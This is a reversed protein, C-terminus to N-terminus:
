QGQYHYTYSKIINGDKDKINLLRQFTDYEYYTTEGKADAKSTMGILPDYTYTTMQAKTPYFRVDDIQGSLSITYTSGTVQVNTNVVYSWSGGSKLWYSLTYTGGSLGSLPKSYTTSSNYSYHGTKSDGNISTGDGEEFSDYFIDNSTANTAQAVPYLNSYGWQYAAPPALTKEQQLINGYNDYNDFNILTEATNSLVQKSVTQPLLLKGNNYWDKYNITTLTLQNSNKTQQYSIPPAIMNRNLMTQYVNGTAVFDHPYKIVDILDDGKSNFTENRTAFLHTADDYYYNHLTGTKNGANDYVTDTESQLLIAGTPLNYSDLVIDQGVFSANFQECSTVDFSYTYTPKVRIM